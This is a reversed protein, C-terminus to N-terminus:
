YGEKTPWFYPIEPLNSWFQDYWSPEKYFLNSRHSAHVREDGWWEPLVCDGDFAAIRGQLDTRDAGDRRLWERCMALGYERLGGVYGRWMHVAPHSQWGYTDDTIARLVQFAEIRQKNLRKNHLVMATLEFDDYPVFTQM